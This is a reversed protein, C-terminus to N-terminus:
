GHCCRTKKFIHGYVQLNFISFNCLFLESITLACMISVSQFSFFNSHIMGTHVKEHSMLSHKYAFTKDCFKCKYAFANMRSDLNGHSFSCAGGDQPNVSEPLEDATFICLVKAKQHFSFLVWVDEEFNMPQGICCKEISARLSYYFEEIRAEHFIHNIRRKPRTLCDLVRFSFKKSGIHVSFQRLPSLGKWRKSESTRATDQNEEGSVITAKSEQINYASQAVIIILQNSIMIKFFIFTM